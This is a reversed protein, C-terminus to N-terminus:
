KSPKIFKPNLPEDPTNQNKYIHRTLQIKNSSKVMSQPVLTPFQPIPMLQTQQQLSAQQNESAEILQTLAKIMEPPPPPPAPMNKYNFSQKITQQMQQSLGSNQTQNNRNEQNIFVQEKEEQIQNLPINIQPQFGMENTYEFQTQQYPDFMPMQPPYPMQPQQYYMQNQPPYGM